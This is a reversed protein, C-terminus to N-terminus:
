RKNNIATALDPPAAVANAAVAVKPTACACGVDPPAMAVALQKRQAIQKDLTTPVHSDTRRAAKAAGTLLDEAEFNM